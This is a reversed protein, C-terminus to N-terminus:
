RRRRRSAVKLAAAASEERDLAARYVTHAAARDRPLATVWARLAETADHAAFVWADFIDELRTAPRLATMPSPTM